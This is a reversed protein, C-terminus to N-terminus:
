PPTPETQTRHCALARRKRELWPRIRLRLNEADAALRPRLRWANWWAWIPYELLTAGGADACARAALACAATHETSGGHAYPAFVFVPTASRIIAALRAVVEAALPPALRDLQGDPAGFFDVAISSADGLVALASLAEHRRQAGLAERTLVPHGGHSAEGDTLFVIRVPDGRSAHLAILGGCGLTEDDPHPAVVVMAGPQPEYPRSRGVLAAAFVSALSRRALNKLSAIM